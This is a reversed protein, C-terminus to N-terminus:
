HELDGVRLAARLTQASGLNHIVAGSDIRSTRLNAYSLSVSAYSHGDRQRLWRNASAM